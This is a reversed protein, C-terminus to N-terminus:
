GDESEFESVKIIHVKQKNAYRVRLEKADYREADQKNIYRGASGFGVMQFDKGAKYYEEVSEKSHLTRGYAPIVTHSSM